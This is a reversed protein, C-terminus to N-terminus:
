DKESDSGLSRETWSRAVEVGDRRGWQAERDQAWSNGLAPQCDVWGAKTPVLHIADSANRDAVLVVSARPASWPAHARGRSFWSLSRSEFLTTNRFLPGLTPLCAAVIATCPEINAWLDSNTLIDLFTDSLSPQNNAMQNYLSSFQVFYFVRVASSVVCFIGLWFIAAVTIKKRTNLHLNHILPLPLSLVAIDLALNTVGCSVLQAGENYRTTGIHTWAYSIPKGTFITVIFFAVFWCTIIAIMVNAVLHFRPTTFIRKYFLLISIKVVSVSLSSILQSVFLLKAFGQIQELGMTALSSGVYGLCAGWSTMAAQGVAVALAAVIVWDDIGYKSSKRRALLRLLVAFIALVAWVVVVVLISRSLSTALLPESAPPRNPSQGPFTTPQSM